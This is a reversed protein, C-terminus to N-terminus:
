RDPTLSDRWAQLAARPRQQDQLWVVQDVALGIVQDISEFRQTGSGGITTWAGGDETDTRFHAFGYGGKPDEFFDVCLNGDTSGISELVIWGRRNVRGVM